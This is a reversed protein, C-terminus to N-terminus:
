GDVCENFFEIDSLYTKKGRKTREVKFDKIIKGGLKAVMEIVNPRAALTINNIKEKLVVEIIKDNHGPFTSQDSSSPVATWADDITNRCEVGYKEITVKDIDIDKIIYAHQVKKGIVTISKTLKVDGPFYYQTTGSWFKVPSGVLFETVSTAIRFFYGKRRGVCLKIWEKTM